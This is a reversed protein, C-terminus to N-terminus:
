VVSKRDPAGCLSGITLTSVKSNDLCKVASFDQIKKYKNQMFLLFEKNSCECEIPNGSIWLKKLSTSNNLMDAISSNVHRITNNRLDLVEVGQSLGFFTLDTINNNALFLKTIHANDVNAFDVNNMLSRIHNGEMHLETHNLTFGTINPLMPINKVSSHSCNVIVASDYLRVNCTCHEPCKVGNLLHDLPCTLELPYLNTLLEGELNPPSACTTKGPIVNVSSLVRPDIESRLYRVFDHLLCDCKIPNNEILVNIKQVPKSYINYADPVSDDMTVSFTTSPGFDIESINNNSLDIEVCTSIVYVDNFELKKIVNYSLDLKSLRSLLIRWDSYIETIVNHSMNLYELTSLEPLHRFPSQAEVGVSDNFISGDFNLQNYAMNVNNLKWMRSFALDNIHHLKNNQITLTRLKGMQSFLDRSIEEIANTDLNLQELNILSRFAENPISKIRNSNLDLTLLKKQDAFLNPPIISIHNNNLSINRIEPSNKFITEPVVELECSYLYVERLKPLDSLFHDPLTKLQQRNYYLMIDTLNKNHAFLNEPLFSFNNNYLNIKELNNLSSFVDEPFTTFANSGLDLETLKDLGKFAEGHLETFRNQWLHLRRLRRLHSFVGNPLSPLENSALQLFELNVLPAFAGRIARINNSRLELWTLNTMDEFLDDPLDTLGNSSLTLRTVGGLGKLHSRHLTNTLNKGFAQFMLINLKSVGARNIVDIFPTTPLPCMKFSFTKVYISSGLDLEPLQAYNTPTQHECILDMFTSQLYKMTIINDGVPCILEIYNTDSCTCNPARPCRPGSDDSSEVLQLGLGGSVGGPRWPTVMLTAMAVWVAFGGMRM